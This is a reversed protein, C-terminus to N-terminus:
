WRAGCEGAEPRSVTMTLVRGVEDREYDVREDVSGDAGADREDFMRWGTVPDNLYRKRWNPLGDANDDEYKLLRQGNDDFFLSTRAVITDNLDVHDTFVHAATTATRVVAKVNGNRDRETRTVVEDDREIIQDLVDDAGLDIETRAATSRERLDIVGDGDVDIEIVRVGADDREIQTMASENLVNWLPDADDITMHVLQAIILDMRPAHAAWNADLRELDILPPREFDVYLLGATTLTTAAEGREITVTLHGDGEARTWATIAGTDDRSITYDLQRAPRVWRALRGAPDWEFRHDALTRAEADVREARVLRDDEWVYSWREFLAPEVCDDADVPRDLDGALPAAIPEGPAVPGPDAEDACATFLLCAIPAIRMPNM